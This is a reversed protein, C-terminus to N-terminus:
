DDQDRAQEGQYDARRHELAADAAGIERDDGLGDGGYQGNQNDPLLTVGDADVAHGVQTRQLSPVDPRVVGLDNKVEKFHEQQEAADEDRLEDPQCLKAADQHRHAFLFIADTEGAIADGVELNKGEAHRRDEGRDPAR